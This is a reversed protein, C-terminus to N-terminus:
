ARRAVAHRGGPIPVVNGAEWLRRYGEGLALLETHTGAAALRGREIFLILDCTAALDLDHTVILSTRGATLRAIGEIVAAENERDLGVTPEDLLLIPCDRLAVRAIAIRQRQGPSLTAGREAIMTDYGEPLAAIFDHANALQAAAEIEHCTVDRGAGLAINEGVSGHLILTEQPVYGIRGRLSRLTFGRIDQGDITIRGSQPDHLRLLLSLLTSKGGGSPGTIAVRTGAPIAFTMGDLVPDGYAYGFRLDEFAIDGRLRPTSRAGPTDRVTAEEDLLAVIREGAASAKVLRGTYKAYERVPRFTNKLYTIVVLLDGPSLRGNLVQLTGFWLVVALGIGTLLDVSRELAAALRKGKVGAKLDRDSTGIFSRELREELGLAQVSRIGAMAEAATAALEGERKRQTRSIDRIRRTLRVSTLALLPLPLLALLTLRWDLALMVGIMGALVLLSALLPMAATVATEKLMAVDSILRLTLDGARARAHFSLPLAQLHRFLDARVAALVRNGVLAFGITSLYQFLAKLAIVAMLGLTCFALLTTPALTAASASEGAASPVVRDIVFKLPWPELLKMATAALLAALSGGMMARHGRLYPTLRRTMRRLGPVAEALTAPRSSM